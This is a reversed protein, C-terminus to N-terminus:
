DPEIGSDSYRDMFSNNIQSNLMPTDEQLLSPNIRKDIDQKKSEIAVLCYLIFLNFLCETAINFYEIVNYHSSKGTSEIVAATLRGFSMIILILFFAHVQCKLIHLDPRKLLFMFLM